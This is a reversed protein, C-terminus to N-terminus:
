AAWSSSTIQPSFRFGLRQPETKALAIDPTTYNPQPSGDPTPYAPTETRPGHLRAAQSPPHSTTALILVSSECSPKRLCITPHSTTTYYPGINPPLIGSQPPLSTWNATHPPLHPQQHKSPIQGDGNRDGSTEKSELV